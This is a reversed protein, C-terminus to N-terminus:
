RGERKRRAEARAQSAQLEEEGEPAGQEGSFFKGYAQHLDGVTRVSTIPVLSQFPDAQLSVELLSVLQALDLSSLGLDPGLRSDPTIAPSSGEAPGAKEEIVRLIEQQISTEIENKTPPNSLM